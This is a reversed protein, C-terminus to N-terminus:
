SRGLLRGFTARLSAFGLSTLRTPGSAGQLAGAFAALADARLARARRGARAVASGERSRRLARPGRLHHQAAGAHTRGRPDAPADRRGAPERRLRRGVRSQDVGGHTNRRLRERGLAAGDARAEPGDEGVVDSREPDVAAPFLRSVAIMRLDETMSAGPRAHMHNFLVNKEHIFGLPVFESFGGTRKQIDRILALHAAIHRPEEIHGYMITSTSRLGIEHAATVIEVWRDRRLKNPSIIKRIEDDLIEAATGPMTGLGADVLWALLEKLPMGSKQHAFHIEEPSFAHIHLKPFERKLAVLIDRYHTHDKRPHIGGQICV